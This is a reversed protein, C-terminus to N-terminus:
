KWKSVVKNYIEAKIRTPIESKGIYNFLEKMEEKPKEHLFEGALIKKAEDRTLKGDRM